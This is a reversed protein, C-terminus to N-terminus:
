CNSTPPDATAHLSMWREVHAALREGRRCATQAHSALVAHALSHAESRHCGGIKRVVVAGRLEQEARNNTPPIAADDLFALLANQHKHVHKALKLNEGDTFDGAVLARVSQRVEAVAERYLPRRLEDRRRGLEIAHQLTKQLARPFAVARGEADVVMDRCRRIIHGNCQARKFGHESLKDLAPLGDSVLRGAFNEGLVELVVAASRRYDIVYVTTDANCFVWLWARRRQIRWGTEDSHVLPSSRLEEVLMLSDPTAKDSLRRVAQVLAGHSVPLGLYRGFLESIDRYPVGQRTKLEVVLATAKPGLSVAAAGGAKSVQRPHVSRVHKRCRRCWGRETLIRLVHARIEPLDVVYQILEEVDFVPEGCCPCGDLRAEM